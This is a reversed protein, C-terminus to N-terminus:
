AALRACDRARRGVARNGVARRGMARRRRRALTIATGLSVAAYLGIGGSKSNAM